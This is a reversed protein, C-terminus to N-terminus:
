GKVAGVTIGRLFYRQFFLFIIIMPIAAFAAGAMIEGVPVVQGTDKPSTLLSLGVPLTRMEKSSTVVLPWIFNNWNGIFQFIALVAMGPKALPAIVRWFITFEGAGDIRASEILESPLAHMFQRMLFMAWVGGTFNPILLAWFTDYWGFSRIIQYQPIILIFSPIMLVAMLIWFITERGYFRLKAFAYGALSGFFVASITRAVGVMMSNFFWRPIPFREWLAQYNHLTLADWRPLIRPPWVSLLQNPELSNKIMWYIPFLALLAWLTIIAYAFLTLLNSPKLRTGFQKSPYTTM